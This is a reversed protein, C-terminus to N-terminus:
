KYHGFSACFNSQKSLLQDYGTRDKVPVGDVAVLKWGARVGADHAPSKFIVKTVVMPDTGSFRCGNDIRGPDVEVWNLKPKEWQTIKTTHNVYFTRDSSPDTRAEWGPPLPQNPQPPSQNSLNLPPASPVAPSQQTPAQLYTGTSANQPMITYQHRTQASPNYAAPRPPVTYAPTTPVPQRQQPPHRLMTTFTERQTQPIRFSLSFHRGSNNAKVIISIIASASLKNVQTGNVNILEWGRTVRCCAALTNPGVETVINNGQFVCGLAGDIYPSLGWLYVGNLTVIERSPGAQVLTVTVSGVSVRTTPLPPPLLKSSPV